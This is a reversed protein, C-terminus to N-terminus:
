VLTEDTPADHATCDYISKVHLTIPIYRKSLGTNGSSQAKEAGYRSNTLCKETNWTETPGVIPVSAKNDSQADTAESRSKGLIV